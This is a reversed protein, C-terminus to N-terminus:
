TQINRSQNVFSSSLNITDNDITNYLSTRMSAYPNEVRNIYVNGTKFSLNRKKETKVTSRGLKKMM